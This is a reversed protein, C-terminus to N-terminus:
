SNISEQIPYKHLIRTHVWECPLEMRHSWPCQSHEVKTLITFIQQLMLLIWLMGSYWVYLNGFNHGAGRMAWWLDPNTTANVMIATGNGQVVNLSVVNDSTLGCQGQFLGHGGGHAEGLEILPSPEALIAEAQSHRAELIYM